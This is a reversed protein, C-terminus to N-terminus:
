AYVMYRIPSDILWRPGTPAFSFLNSDWDWIETAFAAFPAVPQNLANHIRATITMMFVGPTTPTFPLFVPYWVINPVFNGTITATPTSPVMNILDSTYFNVEYPLALNSLINAPTLSGGLSLFPNLYIVAEVYALQGVQIIKHPLAPGTGIPGPPVDTAGPQWPSTAFLNWWSQGAVQPGGAEPALAAGKTLATQVATEVKAKFLAEAQEATLGPGKKFQLEETM